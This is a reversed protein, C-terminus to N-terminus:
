SSRGGARVGALWRRRRATSWAAESRRYIAARGRLGEEESPKGRLPLEERKALGEALAALRIARHGAPLIEELCSGLWWAEASIGRRPFKEAASGHAMAMALWSADSDCADDSERGGEPFAAELEEAVAEM